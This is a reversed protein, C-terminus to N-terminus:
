RGEACLSEDKKPHEFSATGRLSHRKPTAFGFDLTEVGMEGLVATKPGRKSPVIKEGSFVKLTPRSSLLRRKITTTAGFLNYLSYAFRPPSNWIHLQKQGGVWPDRSEACAFHGRVYNWNYVISFKIVRLLIRYAYPRWVQYCSEGHVVVTWPSFTLPRPWLTVCLFNVSDLAKANTVSPLLRWWEYSLFPDAYPSWVQYTNAVHLDVRTTYKRHWYTLCYPDSFRCATFLNVSYTWLYDNRRM